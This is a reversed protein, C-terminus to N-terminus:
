QLQKAITTLNNSVRNNYNDYNNQLLQMITEILTLSFKGTECPRVQAVGSRQPGACNLIFDIFLLYLSKIHSVLHGIQQGSESFNAM